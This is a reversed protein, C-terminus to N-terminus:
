IHILSLMMMPLASKLEKASEIVAVYGALNSQSSLVDMKQARTIRPIFEMSVASINNLQFGSFQEKNSFPEMLGLFLAKDKMATIEDVSIPSTSMLVDSKSLCAERSVSKAGLSTFVEDNVDMGEGLGSEFIIDIGMDLIPKITNPHLSSRLDKQNKPTVAGLIM